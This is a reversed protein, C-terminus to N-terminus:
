SGAEYASKMRDPWDVGDPIIMISEIKESIKERWIMYGDDNRGISLSLWKWDDDNRNSYDVSEQLIALARRRSILEPDYEIILKKIMILKRIMWYISMNMRVYGPDYNMISGNEVNRVAARFWDSIAGSISGDM